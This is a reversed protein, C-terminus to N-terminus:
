DPAITRHIAPHRLVRTLQPGDRLAPKVDHSPTAAINSLEQMIAGRGYTHTAGREGIDIGELRVDIDAEETSRLNCVRLAEQFAVTPEHAVHLEPRVRVDVGLCQSPQDM